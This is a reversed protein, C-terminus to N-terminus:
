QGGESKMSAILGAVTGVSMTEMVGNLAEVRNLIM